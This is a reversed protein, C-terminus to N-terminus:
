LESLPTFGMKKPGSDWVKVRIDKPSEKVKINSKLQADFSIPNTLCLETGDKLYPAMSIIHDANIWIERDKYTTLQILNAM